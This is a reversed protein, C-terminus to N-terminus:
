RKSSMVIKPLRLCYVYVYIMHKVFLPKKGVNQSNSVPGPPAQVPNLIKSQGQRRRSDVNEGKGWHNSLSLGYVRLTSVDVSERNGCGQLNGTENFFGAGEPYAHFRLCTPHTM